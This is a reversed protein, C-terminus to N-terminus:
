SDREAPATRVKKRPPDPPMAAVRLLDRMSIMGALKGKDIVPLHRTGLADMLLMAEEIDAHASVVMPRVTMYVRVTIREPDSRDAMSRALDRETIIGVFAGSEMVALSGVEHFRMRDAVAALPEDPDAVILPEMKLDRVKM